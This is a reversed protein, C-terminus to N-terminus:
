MCMCAYVRVNMSLFLCLDCKTPWSTWRDTCSAICLTCKKSRWVGGWSDFYLIFEVRFCYKELKRQEINEKREEERNTRVIKKTNENKEIGWKWQYRRFGSPTQTSENSSAERLWNFLGLGIRCRCYLTLLHLFLIYM